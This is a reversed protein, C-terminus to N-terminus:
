AARALLTHTRERIEYQREMKFVEHEAKEEALTPLVLLPYPTLWALAAAENVARRLPAHLQPEAAHRSLERFLRDKLGELEREM